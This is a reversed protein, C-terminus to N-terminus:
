LTGVWECMFMLFPGLASKNFKLNDVREYMLCVFYTGLAKIFCQQMYSWLCKHKIKDGFPKNLVAYLRGNPGKTGLSSLKNGKIIRWVM